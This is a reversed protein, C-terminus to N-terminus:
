WRSHLTVNIPRGRKWPHRNYRRVAQLADASSQFEVFASTRRCTATSVHILPGVKAFLRWLDQEGAAEDFNRVLVTRFGDDRLNRTPRGSGQGRPPLWPDELCGDAPQCKFAQSQEYLDHKWTTSGDPGLHPPPRGRTPGMHGRNTSFTEWQDWVQARDSAVNRIKEQRSSRSRSRSADARPLRRFARM